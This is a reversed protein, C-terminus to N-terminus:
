EAETFSHLMWASDALVDIGNEAYLNGDAATSLWIRYSSEGSADLTTLVTQLAADDYCLCVATIRDKRDLKEPSKDSFEIAQLRFTCFVAYAFSDNSQPAYVTIDTCEAKALVAAATVGHTNRARVVLEDITLQHALSAPVPAMNRNVTGEASVLTLGVGPSGTLDSATGLFYGLAAAGILIFCAAAAAFRLLQPKGTHPKRIPQPASRMLAETKALLEASPKISELEKALQKHM